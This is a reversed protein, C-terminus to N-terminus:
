PTNLCNKVPLRRSHQQLKAELIDIEEQLRINEQVLRAYERHWQVRRLLSHSDFFLLWLALLGLATLLLIRHLRRRPAAPQASSAM